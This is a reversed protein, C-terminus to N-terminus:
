KLIQMVQLYSLNTLLEHLLLISNNIIDQYNISQSNPEPSTRDASTHLLDNYILSKKNKTSNKTSSGEKIVQKRM